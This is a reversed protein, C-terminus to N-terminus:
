KVAGIDMGIYFGSYDKEKIKKRRVKVNEM